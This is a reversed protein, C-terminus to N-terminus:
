ADDGVRTGTQPHEGRVRRVYRARAFGCPPRDAIAVTGRIHNRSHTGQEGLLFRRDFRYVQVLDRPLDHCQRQAVQLSVADNKLQFEGLIERGDGAIPDLELLDDQVEEAIGGIRHNVHVIARPLQQDSGFPLVAATDAHAHPIGAHADVGVVHVLQEVGEVCRFGVAHTDPEGNTAGDDLSMMSTEPCLCVVTRTGGERKGNGATRRTNWVRRRSSASMVSLRESTDITSSSSDTRSDSGSKSRSNPKAASANEDASANRADSTTLSVLQRRRSM